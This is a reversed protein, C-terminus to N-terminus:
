ETISAAETIGNARMLPNRDIGHMRLKTFEKEANNQNGDLSSLWFQM